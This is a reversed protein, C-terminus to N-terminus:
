KAENTFHIATNRVCLFIGLAMQFIFPLFKFCSQQSIVVYADLINTYIFPCRLGALHRVSFHIM